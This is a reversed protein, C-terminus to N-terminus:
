RWLHVACQWVMDAGTQDNIIHEREESLSRANCQLLHVLNQFVLELASLVPPEELLQPESANTKGIQRHQVLLLCSQM